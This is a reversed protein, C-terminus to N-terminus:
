QKLVRARRRDRIGPQDIQAVLHVLVLTKVVARQATLANDEHNGCGARYAPTPETGSFYHSM